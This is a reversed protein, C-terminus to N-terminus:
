RISVRNLKQQQVINKVRNKIDEGASFIMEENTPFPVLKAQLLELDATELARRDGDHQAYLHRFVFESVVPYTNMVQTSALDKFAVQGVVNVAKFQTYRQFKSTVTVFKKEKIDNGLSDKKVNGNADLVYKFGDQVKKERIIIKESIQEPTYNIQQLSLEMEYDYRFDEMPENHYVTWLDNLGYTNFNLLDKELREPIVKDSQNNMVVRVYDVGRDHAERMLVDTDKYGPNIKNLYDLDDYAKRFAFKDAGEYLLAKANDYLFQSLENRTKIVVNTYDKFAFNARRSEEELYLPLLPRINEQRKMLNRYTEYIEELQARNSGARLFKIRQLDRDAAKAFAQELMVIYPQNSRKTKNDRLKDIAINIASEYNGSNLAVQTKKVSSCSATLVLALLLIARKM